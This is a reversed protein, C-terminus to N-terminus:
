VWKAEFSMWFTKSFLKDDVSPMIDEESNALGICGFYYDLKQVDPKESFWSIETWCFSFVNKYYCLLNKLAQKSIFLEICSASWGKVTRM